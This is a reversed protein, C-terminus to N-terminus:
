LSRVGHRALEVRTRAYSVVDVATAVVSTPRRHFRHPPPAPRNAVTAQARARAYRRWRGNDLWYRLSTRRAHRYDVLVDELNTMVTHPQMRLFLELDQARKCEVSYGGVQAFLDRRVMAAQHPIANHGRLLRAAVADPTVPYRYVVEPGGWDGFNVVQAGVVGV